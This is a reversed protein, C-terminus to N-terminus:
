WQNLFEDWTQSEKTINDNKPSTESVTKTEMTLREFYKMNLRKLEEVKTQYTKVENELNENKIKLSSNEDNVTKLEDQQSLIKEMAEELNM